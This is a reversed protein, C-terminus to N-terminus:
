DRLNEGETPYTLPNRMRKELVKDDEIKREKAMKRNHIYSDLGTDIKSRPKGEIKIMKPM